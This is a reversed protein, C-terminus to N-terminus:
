NAKHELVSKTHLGLSKAQILPSVACGTSISPKCVKVNCGCSKEYKIQKM